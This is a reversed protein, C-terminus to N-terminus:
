SALRLPPAVPPPADLRGTEAWAEAAPNLRDMEAQILLRYPELQVAKLGPPVAIPEGTLCRARTFPKPIAFRDWSGLRWPRRYGVGVCAVKMGTRSAVYVLGQQVVRRPGRPGDPTVALHRFPANEDVLKRVAEIGGRTTSGCVMGMGLSQILSGLLQGDRHQSILVATDPRGFYVTPLLLNEHWICYILRDPQKHRGHGVDVGLSHERVRLSRVLAKGTAAGLWAAARVLHRNRIKM